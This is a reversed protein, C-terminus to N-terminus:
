KLTLNTNMLISLLYKKHSKGFNVKIPKNIKHKQEIEDFEISKQKNQVYMNYRTDHIFLGLLQEHRKFTETNIAVFIDHM